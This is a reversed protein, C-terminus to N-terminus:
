APCRSSGRGRADAAIPGVHPFTNVWGERALVESERERMRTVEHDDRDDYGCLHLLGHVLYLVLEALPDSGAEGATTAAMEASLILEAELPDEPDSLRFTIVDTPWDHDLHRANIERIKADDVLAISISASAIGERELVRRALGALTNPNVTLHTQSNTIEIDM